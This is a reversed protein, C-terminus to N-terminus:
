PSVSHRRVESVGPARPRSVRVAAYTLASTLSVVLLLATCMWIRRARRTPKRRRASIPLLPDRERPTYPPLPELEPELDFAPESDPAPEPTPPTPADHTPTSPPHSSSSPGARGKKSDTDADADPLIMASTFLLRQSSWTVAHSHPLDARRVPTVTPLSAEEHEVVGSSWLGCLM